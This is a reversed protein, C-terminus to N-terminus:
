SITQANSEAIRTAAALLKKKGSNGPITLKLSAGSPLMVVSTRVVMPGKESLGNIVGPATAIVVAVESVQEARFLPM